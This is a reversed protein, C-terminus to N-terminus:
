GNPDGQAGLDGASRWPGVDRWATIKTLMKGNGAKIREFKPEQTLGLEAVVARAAAMDQVYPGNSGSPERTARDRWIVAALRDELSTM